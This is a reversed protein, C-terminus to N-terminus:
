KADESNLWLGILCLAAGILILWLSREIAGVILTGWVNRYWRDYRTMTKSRHSRKVM